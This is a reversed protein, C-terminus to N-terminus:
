GRTSRVAAHEIQSTVDGDMTEPVPRHADSTVPDPAVWGITVFGLGDQPTGNLEADVEDVGGVGVAGLDALRQDGLRQVGVRVVEDDRRLAAQFAGSGSAPGGVAPGLM